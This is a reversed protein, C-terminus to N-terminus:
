SQERNKEEYAGRAQCARVEQSYISTQEEDAVGIRITRRAGKNLCNAYRNGHLLSLGPHQIRANLDKPYSNLQRRQLRM